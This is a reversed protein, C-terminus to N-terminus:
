LGDPGLPAPTGLELLGGAVRGGRDIWTDFATFDTVLAPGAPSGGLSWVRLIAENGEGPGPMTLIEDTGDDDTDAAGVVAGHKTTYALFDVGPLMTVGAGDYSWARVNAGLGPGPGPGTVIEDLGDGDLDGCAVNVGWHASGYAFHSLGTMPAATGGDVNWGRVHPGFVAGPGAGTVIEDAGDGDLDGCAVNVGWRPTGYAFFNVGDMPAVTGGDVNWGRVHPGFVDGAGAGTVIEDYGDADVDGCAVNVGHRHTGYALFSVGSLPTGDPDWGRVHPGLSPGPGPGTVVELGTVGDLNGCAVNVGYSTGGYALWQGVSTRV